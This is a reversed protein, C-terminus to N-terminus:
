AKPKYAEVLLLRSLNHLGVMGFLFSPIGVPKFSVKEFGAEVMFKGLKPKTFWHLHEIGDGYGGWHLIDLPDGQFLMRWRNDLRAFNPVQIVLKGGPQLVRFAERLLSFPNILHEIVDVASVVEFSADELPYPTQNLDWQQAKIGKQCALEAAQSSMELGSLDCNKVAKYLSAVHGDGCGFDVMKAGEPIRSLVSGYQSFPILSAPLGERIPPLRDKDSELRKKWYDQYYERLDSM